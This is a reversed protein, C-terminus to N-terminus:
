SILRNLSKNNVLVVLQGQQQVFVEHESGSQGVPWWVLGGDVQFEESFGETGLVVQQLAIMFSVVAVM